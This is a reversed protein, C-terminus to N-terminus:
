QHLRWRLELIRGCLHTGDDATASSDFNCASASTCGPYTKILTITGITVTNNINEDLEVNSLLSGEELYIAPSGESQQFVVIGDVWTLAEVWVDFTNELPRNAALVLDFM